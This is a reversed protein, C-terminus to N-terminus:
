AKLYINKLEAKGAESFLHLVAKCKALRSNQIDGDDQGSEQLRKLEQKYFNKEIFGDQVLVDYWYWFPQVPDGALFHQYNKEIQERYWNLSAEATYGDDTQKIKAEMDSIYYRDRLYPKLIRNILGLNMNKGWDEVTESRSRFAYEIEDPNLEFYEETLLKRFQDEIITYMDGSPLTWGSIVHIKVLLIPTWANLEAASM